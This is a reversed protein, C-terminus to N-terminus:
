NKKLFRIIIDPNPFTTLTKRASSSLHIRSVKGDGAPLYFSVKDNTKQGYVLFNQMFFNPRLFTFLIASEELIKEAERHM